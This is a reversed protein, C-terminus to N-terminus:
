KVCRSNIYEFNREAWAILEDRFAICGRQRDGLRRLPLPDVRRRSLEWIKNAGLCLLTSVQEISYIDQIPVPDKRWQKLEAMNM